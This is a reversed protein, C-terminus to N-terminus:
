LSRLGYAAAASRFWFHEQETPTLQSSLNEVAQVWADYETRLLCVPWDSGFMLRQPGFSELAVDWYPRIVDLDWQPDRVETAVGSFKCAVNKRKGLERMGEAWATDFKGAVITPKAIHDLVFAQEPHMDVFKITNPLHKAFILIDYVLGYEKLCSIGENFEKGLIFADDPEGQVVHRVARFKDDHSLREVDERVTKDALPVWGVVAAIQENKAALSLLWDSEEVTQRAQVSIVKEVGVPAAVALLDQPGFDRRLVAKQEDIWGYQQESYDWFHHHSDLRM